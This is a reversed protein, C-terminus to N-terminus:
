EVQTATITKREACSGGAGQWSMWSEDCDDPDTIDYDYLTYKRQDLTIEVGDVKLTTEVLVHVCAQEQESVYGDRTQGLWDAGDAKVGWEFDPTPPCTSPGSCLTVDVGDDVEDLRVYPTPVGVEDGRDSCSTLNAFEKKVEYMGSLTVTTDTDDAAAGKDDGGDCAALALGLLTIRM